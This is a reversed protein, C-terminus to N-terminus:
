KFCPFKECLVDNALGYALVNFRIEGDTKYNQILRFIKQYIKATINEFEPQLTKPIFIFLNISFRPVQMLRSTVCGCM